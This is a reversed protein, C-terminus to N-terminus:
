SQQSIAQHYPPLKVYFRSGEGVLGSSEVWISGDMAEVLRKCIYLGLGTGRKSGALDRKLRVFKEFLLPLEEPPIGPGADQVSLYIPSSPDAQVAKICIETQGPVYKFVNSLLNRLIQRLFQPDAWVTLQDPVQLSIMYTEVDDSALHRLVEQLLSQVAVVECQAQPIEGIVNAADLVRNVLEVLEGQSDLAERLLHSRKEVELHEHYEDLLELSGGLIMLPTRLEHSVNMLFQDKLDNIKRQQEYALTVEHEAQLALTREQEAVVAQQRAQQMLDVAMRLWCVVVGILLSTVFGIIAGEVFSEDPLMGRWLSIYILQFILGNLILSILMGRYRFLWSACVIPLFSTTGNHVLPFLYLLGIVGLWYSLAVILLRKSLSLTLWSPFM